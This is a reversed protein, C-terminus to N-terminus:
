YGEEKWACSAGKDGDGGRGEGEGEGGVGGWVCVKKRDSCEKKKRWSITIEKCIGQNNSTWVMKVEEWGGGEM